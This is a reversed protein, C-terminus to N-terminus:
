FMLRRPTITTKPAPKPRVDGLNYASVPLRVFGDGLKLVTIVRGELASLSRFASLTDRYFRPAAASDKADIWFVYSARGAGAAKAQTLLEGREVTYHLTVERPADAKDLWVHGVTLDPTYLRGSIQYQVLGEYEDMMEQHLSDVLETYPDGASTFLYM